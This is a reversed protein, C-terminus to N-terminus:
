LAKCSVPVFATNGDSVGSYWVWLYYVQPDPTEPRTVDDSGEFRCHYGGVPVGAIPFSVTGSWCETYIPKTPTPVSLVISSLTTFPEKYPTDGIRMQMWIQSSNGPPLGVIKSKQSFKVAETNYGLPAPNTLLGSYSPPNYYQTPCPNMQTAAAAGFPGPLYAGGFAPTAIAVIDTVLLGVFALGILVVSRTRNMSTRRTRLIKM